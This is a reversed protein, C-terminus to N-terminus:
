YDVDRVKSVYDGLIYRSNLFILRIELDLDDACDNATVEDMLVVFIRKTIEELFTVLESALNAAWNEEMIENEAQTIQGTM